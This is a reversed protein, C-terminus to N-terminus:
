LRRYLLEVTRHGAARGRQEFRTECHRGPCGGDVPEFRGSGMVAERIADAYERWDTALYLMGGARMRDALMAIFPPALLRRKHHRRKPWPDPFLVLVRDFSRDPANCRLVEAADACIVRLNSLGTEAANRLLRGIGPRHVEVGVFDAQPEAAAMALLNDGNGFGIELTLPARRGFVAAFDLVGDPVLGYAPWYADLARRQGTTLRGARLAFSRVGRRPVRGRPVPPSGDRPASNM